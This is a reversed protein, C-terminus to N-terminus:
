QLARCGCDVCVMDELPPTVVGNTDVGPTVSNVGPDIVALQFDHQEYIVQGCPCISKHLFGDHQEYTIPETNDHSDHNPFRYIRITNAKVEDGTTNYNTYPCEYGNHRYVGGAGWKSDVMFLDAEGCQGNSQTVNSFGSIIGSHILVDDSEYEPTGNDYYYCIIDRPRYDYYVKYQYKYLGMYYTPDEIWLPFTMNDKGFFAYYHANYCVDAAQVRYANPYDEAYEADLLALEAIEEDTEYPFFVKTKNAGVEICLCLQDILKEYKSYGNYTYWHDYYEAYKNEGYLYMHQVEGNASGRLTFGTCIMVLTLFLATIKKFKTKKM